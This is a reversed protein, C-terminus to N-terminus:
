QRLLRKQATRTLMPVLKTASKLNFPKVTLTMFIIQNASKVSAYNKSKNM